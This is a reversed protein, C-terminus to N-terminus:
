SKARPSAPVGRGGLRAIEEIPMEVAEEAMAVVNEPPTGAQIAHSPTCIYGGGAGLVSKLHRVEARVEDASLRPLVQQVSLGGQFALRDGFRAKLREAAMDACEVQVAELCDVGAEILDDLLAAVSGDSHYIVLAGHEHIMAYLRRHYPMIMQRYLSSSIMPGHQTGLDDACFVADIEDGGLALVRRTVAEFVGTIREMGAHILEPAEILRVLVNELGMLWSLIEMPNGGSVVRGYRGGPDERRIAEIVAECDFHEPSPWTHRHIDDITEAAALPQHDFEDYSGAGYSTRKVTWGWFSTRPPPAPGVYPVHYRRVDSTAAFLAAYDMQWRALLRDLAARAPPQPGFGWYFAPRDAPRRRLNLVMRERPLLSDTM